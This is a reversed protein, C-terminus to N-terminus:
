NTLLEAQANDVGTSDAPTHNRQASVQQTAERLQGTAAKSSTRAHNNTIFSIPGHLHHVMDPPMDTLDNGNGTPMITPSHNAPSQIAIITSQSLTAIPEQDLNNSVHNNPYLDAQAHNTRIILWTLSIIPIQYLNASKEQTAQPQQSLIHCKLSLNSHCIM